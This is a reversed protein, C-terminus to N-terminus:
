AALRPAPEPVTRLRTPPSIHFTESGGTASLCRRCLRLVVPRASMCRGTPREARPAIQRLRMPMEKSGRVRERPSVQYTARVGTRTVSAVSVTHQSPITGDSRMTPCCDNRTLCVYPMPTCADMVPKYRSRQKGFVFPPSNHLGVGLPRPSVGRVRPLALESTPSPRGLPTNACM